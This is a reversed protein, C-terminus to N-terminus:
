EVEVRGSEISYFFYFLQSKFWDSWRSAQNNYESVNLGEKLFLTKLASPKLQYAELKAKLWHRDISSVRPRFPLISFQFQYASKSFLIELRSVIMEKLEHKSCRKGLRFNMQEIHIIWRTPSQKKFRVSIGSYLKLTSIAQQMELIETQSFPKATKM